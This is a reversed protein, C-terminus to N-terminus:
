VNVHSGVLPLINNDQLIGLILMCTEEISKDKCDVIFNCDDVTMSNESSHTGGSLGRDLYIVVGGFDQIAIRENDFRVDDIVALKTNSKRINALCSDIWINDYMRRCIDTGFYQLLERGTMPGPEHYVISGLVSFGSLASYEDKNTFVGPMNEWRLHTPQLKQEQTGYICEDAVGFLNVLVDKLVAAVSFPKIYEWVHHALYNQVEPDRSLVDLEGYGMGDEFEAHVLLKGEENIQYSDILTNEFDVPSPILNKMTFGHLFRLQTTKGSAISGAFGVLNNNSM